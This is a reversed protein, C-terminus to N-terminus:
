VHYFIWATLNVFPKFQAIMFLGFEQVIQNM